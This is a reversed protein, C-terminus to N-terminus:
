LVTAITALGAPGLLETARRLAKGVGSGASVLAGAEKLTHAASALHEAVTYRDPREVAAEKTAADLSRNVTELQPEPLGLGAVEDRTRAITRRLELTEWSAIPSGTLNTFAASAQTESDFTVEDM